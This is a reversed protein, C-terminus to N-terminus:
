TKEITGGRELKEEIEDAIKNTSSQPAKPSFADKIIVGANFNILAVM